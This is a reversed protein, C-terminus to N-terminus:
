TSTSDLLSETIWFDNAAVEEVLVITMMIEIEEETEIGIGIEEATEIVDEVMMTEDTM